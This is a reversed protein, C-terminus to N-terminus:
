EVEFDCSEMCAAAHRYLERFLKGVNEAEEVSCFHLACVEEADFRWNSCGDWKVFGSLFLEADEKNEVIGNDDGRLQTLGAHDLVFKWVKFSVSHSEETAEVYYGLEEIRFGEPHLGKTM